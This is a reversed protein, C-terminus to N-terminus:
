NPPNHTTLVVVNTYGIMRYADGEFILGLVPHMKKRRKRGEFGLGARWVCTEEREADIVSQLGSFVFEENTGEICAIAVGDDIAKGVTAILVEDLVYVIALATQEDTTGIEAVASACQLAVPRHAGESEVIGQHEDVGKCASGMGCQEDMGGADDIVPAGVGKDGVATCALAGM